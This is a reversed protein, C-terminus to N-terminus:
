RCNGSDNREWYSMTSAGSITRSTVSSVTQEFFGSSVCRSDSSRDSDRVRIPVVSQPKTYVAQLHYQDLTPLLDLNLQQIGKQLIHIM